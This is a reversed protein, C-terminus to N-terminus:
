RRVMSRVEGDLSADLPGITLEFRDGTEFRDALSGPVEVVFELDGPEFLTLLPQGPMALDGIDMHTDIVMGGTPSVIETYSMRAEAQELSARRREVAEVAENRAQRLEILDVESAVEAEFGRRVRELRDAIGALAAQAEKLAAEARRKAAAAEERALRALVAGADVRDGASVTIAEIEGSVRAAVEVEARAALAGVLRRRTAWSRRSATVVPANGVMPKDADLSRGAVRPTFLSAQWALVAAIVLAALLVPGWVRAM